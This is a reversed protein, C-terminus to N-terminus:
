SHSPKKAPGRSIALLRLGHPFAANSPNRIAYRFSNERATPTNFTPTKTAVAMGKNRIRYIGCRGGLLAARGRCTRRSRAPADRLMIVPDGFGAPYALPPLLEALRVFRFWTARGENFVRNIDVPTPILPDDDAGVLRDALSSSATSAPSRDDPQSAGAESAATETRHGTPKDYDTQIVHEGTCIWRLVQARRADM